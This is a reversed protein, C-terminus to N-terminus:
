VEMVLEFAERKKLEEVLYRHVCLSVDHTSSSLCLYLFLLLGSVSGFSVLLLFSTCPQLGPLPFPVAGVGVPCPCLGPGCAAGAGARGTGEVHAVAESLGRSPWVAGGQRWHGSGCRLVQGAPVPLQGPVRPLAQAPETSPSSVTLCM